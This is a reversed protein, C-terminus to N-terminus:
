ASKGGKAADHMNKGRYDIVKNKGGGEMKRKADVSVRISPKSEKIHQSTEKEASVMSNRRVFLNSESNCIKKGRNNEYGYCCGSCNGSCEGENQCTTTTTAGTTTPTTTTSTTTTTTGVNSIPIANGVRQGEFVAGPVTAFMTLSTGEGAFFIRGDGVSVQLRVRANEAEAGGGDDVTTPTQFSYAGQTYPSKGWNQIVYNAPTNTFCDSAPTGEFMADLDKLIQKVMDEDSFDSLSRANNGMIFTMFVDDSSGDKYNAPWAWGGSMGNMVMLGVEGGVATVWWPNSDECTSLKRDFKFVAKLGQDFGIDTIAQKTDEPLEPSFSIYGLEEKSGPDISAKLVGIPVAVIVQNASYSVENDLGGNTIVEVLGTTPPTIIGTVPSNLKLTVTSTSITDDWWTKKLVESYGLKKTNFLVGESLPWEFDAVATDHAGMRDVTTGWESGFESDYLFWGRTDVYGAIDMFFNRSGALASEISQQPNKQFSSPKWYWDWIGIFKEWALDDACNKSVGNEGYTITDCTGEEPKPKGPMAYIVSGPFADKYIGPYAATLDQYVLNGGKPGYHEEAGMEVRSDGLQMTKVRGGIDETAELIKITCMPDRQLLTKAASMGAAGAGIIIVDCQTAAVVQAPLILSLPLYL